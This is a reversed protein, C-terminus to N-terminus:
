QKTPKDEAVETAQPQTTTKGRLRPPVYQRSPGTVPPKAPKAADVKSTSDTTPMSSVITDKVALTLSDVITALSDRCVFLSDALALSDQQVKERVFMEPGKYTTDPHADALRWVMTSDLVLTISDTYRFRKVQDAYSEITPYVRNKRVRELSDLRQKATERETVDDVLAQIIDKAKDYIPAFSKPDEMYHDMTYAYDEPRYGYRQLIPAYVQMTDAVKEYRNSRIWEDVVLMEAVIAPMKSKPILRPGRRCGQLSLALALVLALVCRLLRSM